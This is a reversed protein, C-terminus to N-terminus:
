QQDTPWVQLLLSKLSKHPTKYNQFEPCFQTFLSPLYVALSFPLALHFLSSLLFCFPAAPSTFAPTLGVPGRIARCGVGEVPREGRTEHHLCHHGKGQPWFVVRRKMLTRGPPISAKPIPPPTYRRPHRPCWWPSPCPSCLQPLPQWACAPHHHTQMEWLRGRPPRSCPM